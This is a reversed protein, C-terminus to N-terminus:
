HAHTSHPSPRPTPTPSHSHAAATPSPSPHLPHTPRAPHSPVTGPTHHGPSTGGNGRPPNVAPTNRVNPGNDTGAPAHQAPAPIHVGITGLVDHAIQQASDPLTGTAAAALGGSVVVISTAAVVALRAATLRERLAVRWTLAKVVPVEATFAALAAVEGPQAGPAPPASAACLVAYLAAPTDALDDPAVGARHAAFLREMAAADIESM